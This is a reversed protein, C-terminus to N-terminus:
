RLAPPAPIRRGGRRRHLRSREDGRSNRNAASSAAAVDADVFVLVDGEAHRAGVNRARSIGQVPERVVKAGHDRAVAATQDSSGNDVVITEIHVDARGLLDAAARHISDLTSALYAEENFAPVVVSLKVPDPVLRACCIWRKACSGGTHARRGPTPVARGNSESHTRSIAM